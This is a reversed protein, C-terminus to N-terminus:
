SIKESLDPAVFPAQHACGLEGRTGCRPCPGRSMAVPRRDAACAPAALVPCPRSIPLPDLATASLKRAEIRRAAFAGAGKLAEAMRMTGSEIDAIQRLGERESQYGLAKSVTNASGGMGVAIARPNRGGNYRTLVELEAKNLSSTELNPGTM